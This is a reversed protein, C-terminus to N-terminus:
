WIKKNRPSFHGPVPWSLFCSQLWAQSCFDARACLPLLAPSWFSVQCSPECMPPLLSSSLCTYICAYTNLMVTLSFILRHCLFNTRITLKHGTFSLLNAYKGRYGCKQIGYITFSIDLDGRISIRSRWGIWTKLMMRGFIYPVDCSLMGWEKRPPDSWRYAM